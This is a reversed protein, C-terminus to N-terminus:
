GVHARLSDVFGDVDAVTLTLEPHRLLGTPEIGPVRRRFTLLVGRDANSAFTLGRDSVALRAPGATKLFGYPGTVAIEAINDVTSSLRWPGFRVRLQGGDIVASCNGPTIGFPAGAVRYATSFRFAFRQESSSLAM